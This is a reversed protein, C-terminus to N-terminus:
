NASALRKQYHRRRINGGITKTSMAGAIETKTLEYGSKEYLKVAAAQLEATSLIMYRFGRQRAHREAHDLMKQSLGQGRYESDLYMRRLEIETSNIRQM